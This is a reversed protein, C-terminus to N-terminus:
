PTPHYDKIPEVKYVVAQWAEPRGPDIKAAVLYRKGAEVNLKLVGANKPSFPTAPHIWTTTDLRNVVATFSLTHEGPPLPFESQADTIIFNPPVVMLSRTPPVQQSGALNRGDINQLVVREMDIPAVQTAAEVVGYPGKPTTACATLALCLTLTSLRLRSSSLTSSSLKFRKM